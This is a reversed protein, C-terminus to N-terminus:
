FAYYLVATCSSSWMVATNWENLLYKNLAWRRSPICHYVLCSPLMYPFPNKGWQNVLLRAKCLISLIIVSPGWSITTWRVIKQSSSPTFAMWMWYFSYKSTHVQIKEWTLWIHYSGRKHHQAAAALQLEWDAVCDRPYIVSVSVVM